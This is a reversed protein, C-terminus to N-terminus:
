ATKRRADPPRLAFPVAINHSTPNSNPQCAVGAGAETRPLPHPRSGPVQWVLLHTSIFGHGALNLVSSEKLHGAYESSSFDFNVM